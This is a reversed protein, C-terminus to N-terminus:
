NTIEYGFCSLISSRLRNFEGSFKRRFCGSPRELRTTERMRFYKRYRIATQKPMERLVSELGDTMAQRRILDLIWDGSSEAGDVFSVRDFTKEFDPLKGTLQFPEKSELELRWRNHGIDVGEKDLREQRKDYLRFFTKSQRSGFYLSEIGKAGYALFGKRMGKCLVLGPYIEADFDIAIDLRAVRILTSIDSYFTKFVGLVPRISELTTNNPNYEIRFAYDKPSYLFEEIERIEKTGSETLVERSVTCKKRNPLFAGFQIDIEDKTRFHHLFLESPVGQPFNEDLVNHLDRQVLDSMLNIRQKNRKEELADNTWLSLRPSFVLFTVRDISLQGKVEVPLVLDLDQM